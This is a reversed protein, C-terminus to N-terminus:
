PCEELVIDVGAKVPALEHEGAYFKRARVDVVQGDDGWVGADTLADLVARTLKDLDNKNTPYLPASNKLLHANRGTRYHSAPRDFAFRLWIRVPGILKDQYRHADRAHATVHARWPKLRTANADRVGNGYRNATKSGQPIPTGTVRIAVRDPTLLDSM